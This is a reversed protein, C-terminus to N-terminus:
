INLGYILLNTHNTNLFTYFRHTDTSDAPARFNKIIISKLSAETGEERLVIVAVSLYALVDAEIIALVAHDMYGVFGLDHNLSQVAVDYGFLM